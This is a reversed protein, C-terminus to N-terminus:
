TARLAPRGSLGVHPSAPRTAFPERAFSHDADTGAPRPPPCPARFLFFARGNGAVVAVREGDTAMFRKWSQHLADVIEADLRNMRDPKNMTITAVHGNTEYTVADSM